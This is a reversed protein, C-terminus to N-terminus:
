GRRLLRGAAVAAEVEDTTAAGERALALLTLDAISLSPNQDWAQRVGQSASEADEGYARSVVVGIADFAATKQEETLPMPEEPEPPPLPEPDPIPPSEPVPAPPPTSLDVRPVTLDIRWRGLDNRPRDYCVISIHGDFWRADLTLNGDEGSSLIYGIHSGWPYARINANTGVVVWPGSPTLVPVPSGEWVHSAQLRSIVGAPTRGWTEQRAGGGHTWVLYGDEVRPAHVSGRTVLLDELYLSHDNNDGDHEVIWARQGQRSVAVAIQTGKTGLWVGGGGRYYAARTTALPTWTGGPVEMRYPRDDFGKVLLADDTLWSQMVGPGYSQGDVSLMASGCAVQGRSNQQPYWADM